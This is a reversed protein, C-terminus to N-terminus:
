LRFCYNPLFKIIILIIIKESYLKCYNNEAMIEIFYGNIFSIHVIIETYM